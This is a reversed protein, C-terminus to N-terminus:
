SYCAFKFREKKSNKNKTNQNSKGSNKNSVFIAGHVNNEGNQVNKAEYEELFKIKLNDPPRCNTRHKSPSESRNM